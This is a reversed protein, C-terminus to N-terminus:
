LTPVDMLHNLETSVQRNKTITVYRRPSNKTDKPLHASYSSSLSYALVGFATVYPLNEECFFIKGALKLSLLIGLGASRLVLIGGYTAFCSICFVLIYRGIRMFPIRDDFDNYPSAIVRDVTVPKKTSFSFYETGCVFAIPFSLLIIVLPIVIIYYFLFVPALLIFLCILRCKSFRSLVERWYERM